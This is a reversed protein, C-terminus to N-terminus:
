TIVRVATGVLILVVLVAAIRQYRRILAGEMDASQRYLASADTWRRERMARRGERYLRDANRASVKVADPEEAGPVAAAAGVDV